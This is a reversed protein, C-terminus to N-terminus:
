SSTKPKRTLTSRRFLSGRSHIAGIELSLPYEDDLLLSENREIQLQRQLLRAGLDDNGPVRCFREPADTLEIERRADDIPAGLRVIV